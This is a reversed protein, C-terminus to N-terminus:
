ELSPLLATGVFAPFPLFWPWEDRAMPACWSLGLSSTNARGIPEAEGSPSVPPTM